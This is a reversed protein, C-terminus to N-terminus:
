LTVAFDPLIPAGQPVTFNITMDPPAPTGGSSIPVFDNAFTLIYAQAGTKADYLPLQDIVEVDLFFDQQKNSIDRSLSFALGGGIAPDSYPEIPNEFHNIHVVRGGGINTNRPSGPASVAFSPVSKTSSIPPGFEPIVPTLTAGPWLWTIRPIPGDGYNPLNPPYLNYRDQIGGTVVSAPDIFESISQHLLKFQRWTDTQGIPTGNADGTYELPFINTPVVMSRISDTEPAYNLFGHTFTQPGDKLDTMTFAECWDGTNYLQGDPIPSNGFIYSGDDRLYLGPHGSIVMTREQAQSKNDKFTIEDIFELVFYYETKPPRYSGDFGYDLQPNAMWAPWVYVLHTKRPAM